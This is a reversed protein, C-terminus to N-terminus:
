PTVPPPQQQLIWQPWDGATVEGLADLWVQDTVAPVLESIKKMVVGTVALQTINVLYTQQDSSTINVGLLQAWEVQKRLLADVYQHVYQAM